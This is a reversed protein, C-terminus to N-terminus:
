VNVDIGFVSQSSTAGTLIDMLQSIQDDEANTTYASLATATSVQASQMNMITDTENDVRGSPALGFSDMMGKLEQGSLAGDEDSDFSALADETDISTGTTEELAQTLTELESESVLGDGDSDSVQFVDQDPPPPPQQRGMASTGYMTTMSSTSGISSIM